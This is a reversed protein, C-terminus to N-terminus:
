IKIVNKNCFHKKFNKKSSKTKSIKKKRKKGQNKILTHWEIKFGLM